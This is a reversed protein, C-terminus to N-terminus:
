ACAWTLTLRRNMRWDDQVYPETVWYDNYYKLQASDQQYLKIANGTGLSSVPGVFDAFANGSTAYNNQNSFTLLGQLDGTAAGIAGNTENRQADTIQIGFQLTHKGGAM